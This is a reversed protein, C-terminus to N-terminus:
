MSLNSHYHDQNGEYLFSWGERPHSQGQCRWRMKWSRGTHNRFCVLFSHTQAPQEWRAAGGWRRAPCKREKRFAVKEMFDAWVVRSGGLKNRQCGRNRKYKEDHMYTIQKNMHKSKHWIKGWGSPLEWSLPISPKNGLVDFIGWIFVKALLIFVPTQTLISLMPASAGAYEWCLRSNRTGRQGCRGM